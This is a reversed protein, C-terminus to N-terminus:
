SAAVAPEVGIGRLEAIQINPIGGDPGADAVRLSTSDAGFRVAVVANACPLCCLSKGHARGQASLDWVRATADRSGSALFRGDPSFDLVWIEDRHGLLTAALSWTAIDWVHIIERGGTALWRGDASFAQSKIRYRHRGPSRLPEQGTLDSILIRLDDGVSVLWRRDSSLGVARAAFNKSPHSPDHHRHIEQSAGADRHLFVRGDEHGTILAAPGSQDDFAVTYTASAAAWTDRGLVRGEGDLREIAFSGTTGIALRRGDTSFRVSRVALGGLDIPDGTKGTDLNWLQVTGDEGGTALWRGGPDFAGAHIFSAHAQGRVDRLSSRQDLLQRLDWCQVADDEGGTALWMNDPSVAAAMVVDRHAMRVHPALPEPLERITYHCSNITFKRERVRGRASHEDFTNRLTSLKWIAATRDFSGTILVLDSAGATSTTDRAFALAWVANHHASFCVCEWRDLDWLEVVGRRFGGGVALLRGDPSFAMADVRRDAPSPLCHERVVTLMPWQEDEGLAVPVKGLVRAFYAEVDLKWVTISHDAHSVAARTGDQSLAVCCQEARGDPSVTHKKSGNLGRLRAVTRHRDTDYVRATGDQYGILILAQPLKASAALSHMQGEALGIPNEYDRPDVREKWPDLLHISKTTATAIRDKPRQTANEVFAGPVFALGVPPFATSSDRRAPTANPSKRDAGPLQIRRPPSGDDRWIRLRHDAGVSALVAVGPLPAFGLSLVSNSHRLVRTPRVGAQASPHRTDLWVRGSSECADMYRCLNLYWDQDRLEEQMDPEAAAPPTTREPTENRILQLALFPDEGIAETHSRLAQLIANIAARRPHADPLKPSGRLARQLSHLLDFIGARSAELKAIIFEADTLREVLQEWDGALRLHSALHRLAYGRVRSDDLSQGRKCAAALEAHWTTALDAHRLRDRAKLKEALRRRWEPLRSSPPLDADPKLLFEAIYRHFFFLYADPSPADGTYRFLHKAVRCLNLIRRARPEEFLAEILLPTLPERTCALLGFDDLVDVAAADIDAARTEARWHAAVQAIVLDLLEDLSAPEHMPDDDAFIDAWFRAYLFNGRIAEVGVPARGPGLVSAFFRAIDDAINRQMEADKEDDLNITKRCRRRLPELQSDACSTVILFIGPPLVPAGEAELWAAELLEHLAGAASFFTGGEGYAVNLADIWIVERKPSAASQLLTSVDRLLALFQQAAALARDRHWGDRPEDPPGLRHKRRLQASLSDFFHAPNDAHRGLTIFHAVPRENELASLRERVFGTKGSGPKGEILLIGSGRADCTFANVRKALWPREVLGDASFLWSMEEPMDAELLISGLANEPLANM